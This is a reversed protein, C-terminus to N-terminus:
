LPFPSAGEDGSWSYRKRGSASEWIEPTTGHLLDVPAAAGAGSCVQAVAERLASRQEATIISPDPSIFLATKSGAVVQLWQRTRPWPVDKTLAVCDADLHFFTGHQCLRHALTNVGMRRTREWDKGSTDDGTRQMEFLGAALHGVTNCGLIQIKEGLAKRIAVYLDRIVEANTRSRDHLHWGPNTPSAGMENGWKGLLDYTSYDHKILEFGWEALQTFKGAIKEMADPITPDFAMEPARPARDGFRATDLLLRSDTRAEAILPRVWIGPRAGKARVAAALGAMSPFTASGDRWGDDVVTYPTAGGAPALDAVIDTMQLLM